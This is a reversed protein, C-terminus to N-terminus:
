LFRFARRIFIFATKKNTKWEKRILAPQPSSAGIMLPLLAVKEKDMNGGFHPFQFEEPVYLSWLMQSVPLDVKPLFVNKQGFWGLKQDQTHYIVEVSFAANNRSLDSKELPIM